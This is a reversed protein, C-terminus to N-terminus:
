ITFDPRSEVKRNDSVNSEVFTRKFENDNSNSDKSIKSLNRTQKLVNNANEVRTLEPSSQNLKMKQLILNPDNKSSEKDKNRRSETLKERSRSNSMAAGFKDIRKPVFLKSKKDVYGLMAGMKLFSEAMKKDGPAVSVLIKIKQSATPDNQDMMKEGDVM